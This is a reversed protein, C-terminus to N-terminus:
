ALHDVARPGSRRQIRPLPRQPGHNLRRVHVISPPRRRPRGRPSRQGPQARGLVPWWVNHPSSSPLFSSTPSLAEVTRHRRLKLRWSDIVTIVAIAVGFVAPSCLSPSRRRRHRRHRGIYVCASSFSPLYIFFSPSSLYHHHSFLRHYHTLSHTCLVSVLVSLGLELFPSPFSPATCYLSPFPLYPLCPLCLSSSSSLLVGLTLAPFFLFFLYYLWAM